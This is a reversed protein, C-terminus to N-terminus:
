ISNEPCPEDETLIPPQIRLGMGGNRIGEVLVACPETHINKMVFQIRKPELKAETMSVLLESLRFPPYVICFRGGEHLLGAASVCIEAISCSETRAAGREGAAVGGSAPYYPPNTVVLDFSGPQFYKRWNRLDDAYFAGSWGNLRLNENASLVAEPLIDMGCASLTPRRGLLQLSLAGGGCGLDCFRKAGSLRVFAGLWATDSSLPFVGATQRYKPGGEWLRDIEESLQLGPAKAGPRDTDFSM